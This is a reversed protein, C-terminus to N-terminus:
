LPSFVALWVDAFDQEANVGGFIAVGVTVSAYDKVEYRSRYERLIDSLGRQSSLIPRYRENDSLHLIFSLSIACFAQGFRGGLSKELSVTRWPSSIDPPLSPNSVLLSTVDMEALIGADSVGGLVVFSHSRSTVVGNAAMSEDQDLVVSGHSCRSCRLSSTLQSWQLASSSNTTASSSSSVPPPSPLATLVWIDNLLPSDDSRRGGSILLQGRGVKSAGHMERPGPSLDDESLHRWVVFFTKTDISILATINVLFSKSQRERVSLIRTKLCCQM